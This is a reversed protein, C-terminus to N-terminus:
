LLLKHRLYMEIIITNDLNNTIVDKLNFCERRMNLSGSQIKSVDLMNETLRHPRRANKIITELLEKNPDDKTHALLVDIM